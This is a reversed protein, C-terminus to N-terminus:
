LDIDLAPSKKLKTAAVAKMYPKFEVPIFRVIIEQYKCIHQLQDHLLKLEYQAMFPLNSARPLKKKRDCLIWLCVRYGRGSNDKMQEPIHELYSQKTPSASAGIHNRIESLFAQDRVFSECYFRTQAFLYSISSSGGYPKCNIIRIVGDDTLDLIDCFEKDKRSSGIRLKATDFKISELRRKCAEDNFVGERNKGQKPDFIPIDVYLAEAPEQHVEKAVFDVVSRYFDGAVVKWEGDTLIYHQKGLKHEFIICDYLSWWKNSLVREDVHSYAWIRKDHLKKITLQGLKLVTKLQVPDLHAYIHNETVEHDSYSFSFEETALFEPIWLMIQDIDGAQLVKLLEADLLEIDEDAAPKFNRYNPFLKAFDEKAYAALFGECHKVLRDWTLKESGLGKFTLHDRGQLTILPNDKLHAAMSKLDEAESLGFVFSNTPRGVQRDILTPTLSHSQTRTQRIGENGCLNMATRIGFDRELQKRQLLAAASRGFAAILQRDDITLGLIANANRSMGAFVVPTKLQQNVFDLWPPNAKPAESEFYVFRCPTGSVDFDAQTFKAKKTVKKWDIADEFSTESKALYISIQALEREATDGM